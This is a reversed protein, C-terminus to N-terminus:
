PYFERKKKKVKLIFLFSFKKFIMSNTKKLLKANIQEGSALNVFFVPVKNVTTTKVPQKSKGRRKPACSM